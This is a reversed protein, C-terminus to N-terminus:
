VGGNSSNAHHCAQADAVVADSLPLTTQLNLRAKIWASFDNISRSCRDIVAQESVVKAQALQAETRASDRESRATSAESRATGLLGANFAADRKLDGILNLGADRENQMSVTADRAAAIRHSQQNERVVGTTAGAVFLVATAGVALWRVSPRKRAAAEMTVAPRDVPVDPAYEPALVALDLGPLDDPRVPPATPLSWTNQQNLMM